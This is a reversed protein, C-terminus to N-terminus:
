YVMPVHWLTGNSVDMPTLGSTLLMEPYKRVDPVPLSFIHLNNQTM